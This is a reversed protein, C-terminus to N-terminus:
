VFFYRTLKPELQRKFCTFNLCSTAKFAAKKLWKQYKIRCLSAVGSLYGAFYRKGLLLCDNKKFILSYKPCFAHFRNITSHDSVCYQLSLGFFKMASLSDNVHEELKVEQFGIGNAQWCCRSCFCSAIFNKGKVVSNGKTYYKKITKEVKNWDIFTNIRQYFVVKQKKREVNYFSFSM